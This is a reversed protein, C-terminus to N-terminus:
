EYKKYKFPDEIYKEKYPRLDEETFSYGCGTCAWNGEGYSLDGGNFTMLSGCDPCPPNDSDDIISSKGGLEVAVAMSMLFKSHQAM